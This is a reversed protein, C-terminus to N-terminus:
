KMECIFLMQNQMATFYDIARFLFEHKYIM